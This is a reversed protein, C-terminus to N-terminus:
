TWYFYKKKISEIGLRRSPAPRTSLMINRNWILVAAEQAFASLIQKNVVEKLKLTWCFIPGRKFHLLFDKKRRRIISWFAIFPIYNIQKQFQNEVESLFGTSESEHKKKIPWKRLDLILESLLNSQFYYRIVYINKKWLTKIM